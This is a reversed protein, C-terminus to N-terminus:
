RYYNEMLPQLPTQQLKVQQEYWARNLSVMKRQTQFWCSSSFPRYICVILLIKCGANCQSAWRYCFLLASPPHSPM